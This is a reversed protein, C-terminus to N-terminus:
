LPTPRYRPPRSRMGDLRAEDLPAMPSGFVPTLGRWGTEAELVQLIRPHAYYAEYCFALVMAWAEPERAELERLLEERLAPSAQPFVAAGRAESLRALRDLSDLLTARLRPAQLVTADIYEAAGVDSAAPRAGRAPILAAVWARLIEARRPDLVAFGRPQGVPVHAHGVELRYDPRSASAVEYAEPRRDYAM